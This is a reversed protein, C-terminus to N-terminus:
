ELACRQYIAFSPKLDLSDPDLAQVLLWQEISDLEELTQHEKKEEKADMTEDSCNITGEQQGEMPLVTNLSVVGDSWWFQETLDNAFGNSVKKNKNM